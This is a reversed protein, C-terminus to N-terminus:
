KILTIVCNVHQIIYNTVGGSLLDTIKWQYDAGGMILHDINNAKVTEVIAQRPEGILIITNVHEDTGAIDQFYQRAEALVKKGSQKKADADAGGAGGRRPDPVINLLLVNPKPSMCAYLRAAYEVSMTAYKTGDTAILWNQPLNM